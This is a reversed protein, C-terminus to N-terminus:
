TNAEWELRSKQLESLMTQAEDASLSGLLQQSLSDSKKVQKESLIRILKLDELDKILKRARENSVELTITRMISVKM